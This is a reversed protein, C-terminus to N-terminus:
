GGVHPGVLAEMAGSPRLGLEQHLLQRYDRYVRLADAVNGQALRIEVILRRSSERLPEALVVALAAELARSRRNRALLAEAARELAELRLLRFRERDTVIWEDDWDPLVEQRAILVSVSALSAEDPEEILDQTLRMLRTFDVDINESLAIRDERAVVVPGADRQLRWLTTRLSNAALREPADIWLSGALKTRTVPRDSLALYALVREASHPVSIHRGGVVLDFSDTLTLSPSPGYIELAQDRVGALATM